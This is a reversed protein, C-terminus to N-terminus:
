DKPLDNGSTHGPGVMDEPRVENDWRGKAGKILMIIGTAIIAIIIGFFVLQDFTKAACDTKIPASDESYEYCDGFEGAEISAARYSEGLMGFVLFGVFILIVGLILFRTDSM